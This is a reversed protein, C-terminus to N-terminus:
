LRDSRPLSPFFFSTGGPFRVGSTWGTAADSFQSLWEPEKYITLSHLVVTTVSYICCCIKLGKTNFTKLQGSVKQWYWDASVLHFLLIIIAKVRSHRWEAGNLTLSVRSVTWLTMHRHWCGRASNAHSGCSDNPDTGDRAQGHQCTVIRVRRRLARVTKHTGPV